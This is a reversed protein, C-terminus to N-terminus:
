LNNNFILVINNLHFTLKESDNGNEVSSGGNM